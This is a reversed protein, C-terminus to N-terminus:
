LGKYMRGPNLIGHPDLARKLRRHLSFLPAPLPHFVDTAQNGNRFLTAHGGAGAALNRVTEASESSSLWRQGGAWEILWEGRIALPPTAPPVSLRWLPLRRRFFDHEQDRISTWLDVKQEVLEDGLRRQTEQIGTESGSVRLYLHDDFWSAASLPIPTEMWASFRQIAEGQSCAQQLTCERAAKPLVKLSVDLLLGLTGLAGTMLRSLDYGAVNKMVQGGFNLVQARGNILSVGLVSDRASGSFPRRPGALGAAVAGGLTTRPSFQPPDFALMQGHEDLLQDVESLPTGARARIVLESPEYGLVGTHGSVEIRKGECAHGYFDKSHGGHISLATKAACAQAIQDCLSATLDQQM